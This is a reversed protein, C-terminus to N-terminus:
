SSDVLPGGASGLNAAAAAVTAAVPRRRPQQGGRAVGHGARAVPLSRVRGRGDATAAGRQWPEARNHCVRRSRRAQMRFPPVSELRAAGRHRRKASLVRAFYRTRPVRTPARRFLSLPDFPFPYVPLSFLRTDRSLPAAVTALPARRWRIRARVRPPEQRVSPARLKTSVGRQAFESSNM